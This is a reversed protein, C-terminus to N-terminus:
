VASGIVLRANRGMRVDPNLLTTEAEPMQWPILRLTVYEKTGTDYWVVWFSTDPLRVDTSQKM